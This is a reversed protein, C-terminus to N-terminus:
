CSLQRIAQPLADIIDSAILSPEGVRTAAKDGALGHLYVAISAARFAATELARRAENSLGQISELQQCLEQRTARRQQAVIGLAIGTLVDGAGATAMGANGTTNHYQQGSPACVLTGHGKSVLVIGHDQAFRAAAMRQNPVDTFGKPALTQENLREFERAHPTLICGFPMLPYLEDAHSALCNLADADLVLMPAMEGSVRRGGEEEPEMRVYEMTPYSQLLGKLLTYCREDNGVGPGMAVADYKQWVEAANESCLDTRVMTEPVATQLVGVGEEVTAVTLLGVGSRLCARAALIAAGMKGYGGAVLLAHGYDGKHSNADRCVLYSPVPELVSNRM